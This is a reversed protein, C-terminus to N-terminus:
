KDIDVGGGIRQYLCGLGSLLYIQNTSWRCNRETNSDRLQDIHMRDILPAALNKVKVFVQGGTGDPPNGAFGKSIITTTTNLVPNFFSVQPFYPSSLLIQNTAPLPYMGLLYWAVYSGM